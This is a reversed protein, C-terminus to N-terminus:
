KIKGQFKLAVLGLEAADVEGEGRGGGGEGRWGAPQSMLQGM